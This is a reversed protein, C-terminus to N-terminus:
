RRFIVELRSSQDCSASESIYGGDDERLDFEEIASCVASGSLGFVIRSADNFNSGGSISERPLNNFQADLDSIEVSDDSQLSEERVLSFVPMLACDSTNMLGGALSQINTAAGGSSSAQERTFAFGTQEPTGEFFVCTFPAEPQLMTVNVSVSRMQPSGGPPDQDGFRTGEAIVRLSFEVEAIPNFDGGGGNGDDPQNAADAEAPTFLSLDATNSGGSSVATTVEDRVFGSDFVSLAWDGPPVNSCSLDEPDCIVMRCVPFEEVKRQSDNDCDTDSLLVTAGDRIQELRGSTEVMDLTGSVAEPLYSGFFNPLQEAAFQRAHEIGNKLGQLVTVQTVDSIARTRAQTENLGQQQLARARAEILAERESESVNENITALREKEKAAITTITAVALLVIPLPVAKTSSQQDLALDRVFDESRSFAQAAAEFRNVWDPYRELWYADFDAYREEDLAQSAASEEVILEEVLRQVDAAAEQQKRVAEATNRPVSSGTDGGGGGGCGALVLVASLVYAM